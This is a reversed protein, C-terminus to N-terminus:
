TLETLQVHEYDDWSLRQGCHGCYNQYDQAVLHRCKPCVPCVAAKNQFHFFYAEKVEMGNKEENQQNGYGLLDNPTVGFATCMKELVTITPVADKRIIDGFHRSSIDCLESAAEYSLNRLECISLLAETLRDSYMNVGEKASHQSLLTCECWMVILSTYQGVTSDLKTVHM